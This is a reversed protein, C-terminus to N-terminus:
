VSWLSRQSLVELVECELVLARTIFYQIPELTTNCLQTYHVVFALMNRCDGKSQGHIPLTHQVKPDVKM